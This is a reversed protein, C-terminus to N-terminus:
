FIEKRPSNVEPINNRILIPIPNLLLHMFIDKYVLEWIELLVVTNEVCLFIYPVDITLHLHHIICSSIDRLEISEDHIYSSLLPSFLQLSVVHFSEIVTCHNLYDVLVTNGLVYIIEVFLDRPILPIQDSFFRIDHSSSLVM